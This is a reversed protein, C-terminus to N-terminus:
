YVYSVVALAKLPEGVVLGGSGDRWRSGLLNELTVGVSLAGYSTQAELDLLALEDAVLLGDDTDARQTLGRAVLSVVSNGRKATMGISSVWRPALAVSGTEVSAVRASHRSVLTEVELWSALRTTAAAVAGVRRATAAVEPASIDGKWIQEGFVAVRFRHAGRAGLDHRLETRARQVVDDDPISFRVLADREVLADTVSKWSGNYGDTTLEPSAHSRTAAALIVLITLWARGM